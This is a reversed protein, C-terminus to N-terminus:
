QRRYAAKYEFTKLGVFSDLVRREGIAALSRKKMRSISAVWNAGGAILIVLGEHRRLRSPRRSSIILLMKTTVRVKQSM